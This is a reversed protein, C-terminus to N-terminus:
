TASRDCALPSVLQTRTRRGRGLNAEKARREEEAQIQQEHLLKGWFSRQEESNDEAAGLGSAEAEWIKAFSFVKSAKDNDDSAKGKVKAAEIEKEVNDILRDIEAGSYKIDSESEGEGSEFIAKAGFQLTAEVDATETDEASMRSVIVHELAMKKKCAMLIKEECSGKVLLKYCTVPKTQGIRHARSIAQLDQMPNFDQDFLIVTDASTLNIGVGGARTSLLFVQLASDPENYADISAQRESQSSSGSMSTFPVRLHELFRALIDLVGLFQTFILTRHGREALKPLLTSLLALKASADVLFAHSDNASLGPPEIDDSFLYPSQCIKRLQM